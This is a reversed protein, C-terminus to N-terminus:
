KFNSDTVSCRIYPYPLSIINLYYISKIYVFVFYKKTKLAIYVIEM